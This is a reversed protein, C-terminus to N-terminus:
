SYAVFKCARTIIHGIQFTLLFTVYKDRIFVPGSITTRFLNLPQSIIRDYYFPFATNKLEFDIM